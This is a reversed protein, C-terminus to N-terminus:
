KKKEVIAQLAYVLNRQNGQFVNVLGSLPAKISGVVKAILEEKSPLKALDKVEKDTMINSGLLGGLIKLNKNNKAFDNLIKAVVVEDELSSSIALQGKMKKVDLGEIGASKLAINVLSKKIVRLNSKKEKLQKKLITMDTVNLGRYNSFVISKAEKIEQTLKNVIEKKQERTLM